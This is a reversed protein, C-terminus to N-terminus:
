FRANIGARTSTIRQGTADDTLAFTLTADWRPTPTWYGQASWQRATRLNSGLSRGHGASMTITRTARWSLMYEETQNWRGPEISHSLDGIFTWTQTARLNGRIAATNRYDPVHQVDASLRATRYDAQLDFFIFPEAMTSISYIRTRLVDRIDFREDVSYVFESNVRLKPLLITQASVRGEDVRRFRPRNLYEDQRQLYVRTTLPEGWRSNLAVGMHQATTVPEHGQDYQTRTLRYHAIIEVPNAWRSHLDTTVAASERGVSTQTTNVKQADGSVRTQFRPDPSFSLSTNARQDFTHQAPTSASRVIFARLEAAYVPQSQLTPTQV